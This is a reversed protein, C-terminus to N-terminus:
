NRNVYAAMEEALRIDAALESDNTSEKFEVIEVSAVFETRVLNHTIVPRIPQM